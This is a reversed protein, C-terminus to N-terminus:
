REYILNDGSIKYIYDKELTNLHRCKKRTKIVDMTDTVAHGTNLM